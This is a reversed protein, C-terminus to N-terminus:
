EGHPTVGGGGCHVSSPRRAGDPACIRRLSAERQLKKCVDGQPQVIDVNESARAATGLPWPSLQESRDSAM